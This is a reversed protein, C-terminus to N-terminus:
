RQVLNFVYRGSFHAAEGNMKQMCVIQQTEEMDKLFYKQWQGDNEPQTKDEDGIDGTFKRNAYIVIDQIDKNHALPLPLLSLTSTNSNSGTDKLKLM